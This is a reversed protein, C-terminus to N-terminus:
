YGDEAEVDAPLSTIRGDETVMEFEDSKGSVKQMFRLPNKPDVFLMM